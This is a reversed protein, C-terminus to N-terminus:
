PRLRFSQYGRMRPSLGQSEAGQGGDQSKDEEQSGDTPERSFKAEPGQSDSSGDAGTTSDGAEAGADPRYRTPGTRTPGSSDYAEGAGDSAKENDSLEYGTLLWTERSGHRFLSLVAKRGDYKIDVRRAKEPGYERDVTGYALVEVMKRAVQEGDNGEWNRRAIIHSVGHGDSFEQSSDGPEGWLFSIPGVDPRSMAEPVDEQEAIVRDMATAGCLRVLDSLPSLGSLALDRSAKHDTAGCLRVREVAPIAGGHACPLAAEM